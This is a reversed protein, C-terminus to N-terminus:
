MPTSLIQLQLGVTALSDALKKIQLLYDASPGINYDDTRWEQYAKTEKEAAKDEDSAYQVPVKNKDLHDQLKQGSITQIVQYTWTLFNDNCLKDAIPIALSKQYGNQQNNDVPPPNIIEAAM